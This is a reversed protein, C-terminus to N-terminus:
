SKAKETQSPLMEKAAVRLHALGGRSTDFFGSARLVELAAADPEYPDDIADRTDPKDAYLTVVDGGPSTRNFGHLLRWVLGEAAETALARAIGPLVDDPNGSLGASGVLAALDRKVQRLQRGKMAPGDYRVDGISFEIM